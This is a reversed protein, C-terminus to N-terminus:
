RSVIELVTNGYCRPIAHGCIFMVARILGKSIDTSASCRRQGNNACNQSEARLFSSLRSHRLHRLMMMQESRANAGSGLLALSLGIYERRRGVNSWWEKRSVLVCSM